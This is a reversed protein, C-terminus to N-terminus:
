AELLQYRVGDASDPALFITRRGALEFPEPTVTQVGASVLASVAQDLDAMKVAIHDISAQSDGLAAKRREPDGHEILEISIGGWRLFRASLNLESVEVTREVALGFADGLFRVAADLDDVVVGVHDIESRVPCAKCVAHRGNGGSPLLAPQREAATGSEVGM